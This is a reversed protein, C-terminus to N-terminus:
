IQQFINSTRGRTGGPAYMRDAASSAFLPKDRALGKRATHVQTVTLYDSTDNNMWILLTFTLKQGRVDMEFLFCQNTQYLSHKDSRAKAATRHKVNDPKNVTQTSTCCTDKHQDTVLLKNKNTNLHSFSEHSCAWNFWGTWCRKSVKVLLLATIYCQQQQKSVQIVRGKEACCFCKSVVRSAAAAAAAGRQNRIRRKQTYDSAQKKSREEDARGRVVKLETTHGDLFDARELVLRVALARQPFDLDQQTEVVLVDDPDFVDQPRAM